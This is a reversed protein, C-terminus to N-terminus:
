LTIPILTNRRIECKQSYQFIHTGSEKVIHLGNQGIPFYLKKTQRDMEEIFVKADCCIPVDPHVTKKKLEEKDIDVMVHTAGRAFTDYAYSITWTSLRTGISILLDCNQVIFNGVREGFLAPRGFFLPHDSSIIDHATVATLIPVNLRDALHLFEQVAGALRIGNGALIVPRKARKLLAM